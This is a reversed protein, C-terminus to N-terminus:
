LSIPGLCKILERKKFKGKEKYGACVMETLHSNGVVVGLGSINNGRSRGKGVVM